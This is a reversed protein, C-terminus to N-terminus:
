SRGGFSQVVATIPSNQWWDPRMLSIEVNFRSISIFHGEIEFTTPRRLQKM